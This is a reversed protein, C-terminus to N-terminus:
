KVILKYLIIILTVFIIFSYTWRNQRKTLVPVIKKQIPVPFQLDPIKFRMASFEYTKPDTYIRLITVPAIFNEEPTYIIAKNIKSFPINWEEFQISNDTFRLRGNRTEKRAWKLPNQKQPHDILRAKVQVDKELNPVERFLGAPWATSIASM